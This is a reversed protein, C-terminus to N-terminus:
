LDGLDGLFGGIYRRVIALVVMQKEHSFTTAACLAQSETKKRRRHRRRKKKKMNKEETETRKNSRDAGLVFTPASLLSSTHDDKCFPGPHVAEHLFANRPLGGGEPFSGTNPAWERISSSPGVMASFSPFGKPPFPRM